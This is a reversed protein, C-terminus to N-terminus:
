LAAFYSTEGQIVTSCVAGRGRGGGGGGGWEPRGPVVVGWPHSHM